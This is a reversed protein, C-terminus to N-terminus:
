RVDEKDPPRLTFHDAGAGVEGLHSDALHQTSGDWEAPGDTEQTPDFAAAIAGTGTQVTGQGVKSELMWEETSLKEVGLPQGDKGIYIIEVPGIIELHLLPIMADVKDATFDARVVGEFRHGDIEVWLLGIGAGVDDMTEAAHDGDWGRQALRIRHGMM